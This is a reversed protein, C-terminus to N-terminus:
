CGSSYPEAPEPIEFSEEVGMYEKIWEAQEPASGEKIMKQWEEDTLRKESNVFEYYSFVAGRTLYLEGEIPVVVYIEHAPGVGVELYGGGSFENPAVTHIDSILAMNKDTESTIEFWRMGDGAFSATLYELLGGYTLLQYNEEASLPENNLEKVSCNILFTLLDEFQELKSEIEGTIIDREKLNARSFRNLWLLKEYVEINPEVYGKIEPPEEGGGCEAGSQKGYLVTDHKLESWSGLATSLSKDEWAKNTMFSPYGIDYSKLFGKLTWLWGYYMNSQWVDSDLAKYKTKMKELEDPYAEWKEQEKYDNLLLHEARESGLAAMVDLGMPIPRQLPTVLNQIIEADPIFRQGMIRFQKGIPTNVDTYKAQIMPEPLLDAETYFANMNVDDDMSDLVLNTGYVKNMILKYDYIDLDDAAGVYFKTPEYIREWKVVDHDSENNMFTAHTLLMAQMTSDVDRITEGAENKKYLPMPVQGYWMMTRFYRKLADSRTYHGRPRYQSYDLKFKFITSEQFGAESMIKQYEAQAFEKAKESMNAPLEKDLTLQAAGLFAMNKFAAEQVNKNDAQRHLIIMKKLLSENLEELIGLLKEQELTRLSYDYFIHYVQLVSDTTVFTPLKKYENNEYIYFLQEEMSQNVFFGNNILLEKQRDSLAPFQNLNKINSLDSVIEYPAVSATIETPVYPIDIVTKEVPKPESPTIISPEDQQDSEEKGSQLENGSDPSEQVISETSEAQDLPDPTQCGSIMMILVLIVALSRVSKKNM